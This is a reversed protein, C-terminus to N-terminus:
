HFTVIFLNGPMMNRKIEAVPKLQVEVPRDPNKLETEMNDESIVEGTVEFSDIVYPIGDGAMVNKGKVVHFHLHPGDSNGSSGLLGILQGKKVTEGTHVRLSDKILHAYLVAYGNGIDQSIYNGPATDLTSLPLKTEPPTDNMGDSTNLIVGDSVAYIEKGYQPYSRNEGRVGSVIRNQKDLQVWDVAWREPATWRGNIPMITDRHFGGPGVVGAMWRDGKVPPGIVVPPSKDISLRAVRQVTKGPIIPLLPENTVTIVHEIFKPIYDSSDFILNIKLYGSDGPTLTASPKAQGPVHMLSTLKSGALAVLPIAPHELDMVEVKEISVPFSVANSIVLEYVVYLKGDTLVAVRPLAAPSALVPTMLATTEELGPITHNPTQPSTVPACGTVLIVSLLTLWVILGKVATAFCGFFNFM